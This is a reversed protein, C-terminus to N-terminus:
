GVVALSNDFGHEHLKQSLKGSEQKTKLPGIQVRYMIRQRSDFPMIRAAYLTLHSLSKVVKQANKYEDFAGVQVFFHRNHQITTASVNNKALFATTAKATKSHHPQNKALLIRKDKIKAPKKTTQYFTGPDIVSIQVRATGKGAYGLKEAAAYSLDIIRSSTFPGRDNVKVIVQRGNELNTVKVYSPIPLNTSAATMEWPDYIEDSSTRRHQFKRGYWSAFGKKTYGYANGLVYYRHGAAVYSAPNCYSLKPEVRPVADPIKSVDVNGDPVGDTSYTKNKSVTSCASFLFCFFLVLVLTVITRITKM